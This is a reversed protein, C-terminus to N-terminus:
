APTDETVYWLFLLGILSAEVLMVTLIGFDSWATREVSGSWMGIGFILTLLALLGAEGM